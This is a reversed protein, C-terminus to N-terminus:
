GLGARFSALKPQVVRAFDAYAPREPRSRRRRAAGGQLQIFRIGTVLSGVLAASTDSRLAGPLSETAVDMRTGGAVNM